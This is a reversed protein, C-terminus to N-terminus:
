SPLFDMGRFCSQIGCCRHPASRLISPMTLRNFSQFCSHQEVLQYRVGCFQMFRNLNHDRSGTPEPLGYDAMLAKTTEGDLEFLGKLDKPYYTSVTGDPMLMTALLDDAKNHRLNGNARRSESNHLRLDLEELERRSSEVESQLEQPIHTKLCEAVHEKVLGDIQNAIVQEVHKRMEEVVQNELLEDLIHQIEALGEQHKKDQNVMQERLDFIEKRTGPEGLLAIQMAQGQLADVAATLHGLPSKIENIYLRTKEAEIEINIANSGQVPSLTMETSSPTLPHM